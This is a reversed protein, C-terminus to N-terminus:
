FLGKGSITLPKKKLNDGSIKILGISHLLGYGLHETGYEMNVKLFLLNSGM